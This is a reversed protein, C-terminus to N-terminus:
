PEENSEDPPSFLGLREVDDEGLISSFGLEEM